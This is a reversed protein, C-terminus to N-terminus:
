NKRISNIFEEIKSSNDVEKLSLAELAEFNLNFSKNDDINLADFMNSFLLKFNQLDNVDLFKIVEAMKDQNKVAIKGVAESCSCSSFSGVICKCKPISGSPCRVM